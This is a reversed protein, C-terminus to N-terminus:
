HVAAEIAVGSAGNQVFSGGADYYKVQYFAVHMPLVPLTITCSSSCPARTYTDTTEFWFPAADTVTSAVAVCAERRSSCYHQAVTGQELYGFEVTATAIGLGTPTTISIPARVFTSRDVSDSATFPPLKAMLVQSPPFHATDGYAFLLNSGDALPKATPYDNTKRLSTLGGTIVRSKSGDAAAQIAGNALSSFNALCADSGSNCALSPSGPINVFIDGKSSGAYCENAANAVCCKYSDSSDTALTAPSVDLFSFPAGGGQFTAGVAGAIQFQKPNFWSTNVMKYLQGTIHSMTNPGNNTGVFDWLLFDNFWGSGAPGVSPHKRCANGACNASAGAFTNAASILATPAAGVQTILDGVRDVWGDGAESLMLNTTADNHGAVAYWAFDQVYNTNSTDLGHPDSLFKWHIFTMDCVATQAVGPAHTAATTGNVGRTVAWSTPSIKTVIQVKESDIQFIDGAKAIPQAADHVGGNVATWTTADSNSVCYAQSSGGGTCVGTASADTFLYVSTGVSPASAFSALPYDPEGSVAITTAVSSLTTGGTYTNVYPGGGFGNGSVFGHPILQFMPEDYGMPVIQHTACWSTAPNDPVRVLAVPLATSIRLAGVYGYSDQEGRACHFHVFDGIATDLGCSFHTSDFTSDFALLAGPLNSMLPTASSFEVWHEPTNGAYDGNYVETSINGSGDMNYFKNDKVNFSGASYSWGLFRSEGTSPIIYYFVEPGGDGQPFFCLYGGSPGSTTEACVRPAGSDNLFPGTRQANGGSVYYNTDLPLSVRRLLAGTHPDVIKQTRDNNDLTPTITVGPNAPDLQPADQYTMGFPINATTFSGTATAGTCSVSYYHTTNAQLALSYNKGDLATQSLRKGVVVIRATGNTIGSTRADSNAGTFLTSDVDHVPPSLTNSESVQVTCASTDPAAYALV